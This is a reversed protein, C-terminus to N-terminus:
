LQPRFPPQQWMVQNTSFRGTFSPPQPPPPPQLLPQPPPPLLQPQSPPPPPLQPQPPPRMVMPPQSTIPPRFPQCSLLSRTDARPPPPGPPLPPQPLLPRPPCLPLNQFNSTTIKPPQQNHLEPPRWEPMDDDDFLKNKKLSPKLSGTNKNNNRELAEVVSPVQILSLSDIKKSSEPPQSVLTSKKCAASFDFEPLDDDEFPRKKLVFNGSDSSVSNQLPSSSSSRGGNHDLEPCVITLPSTLPKDRQSSEIKVPSLKKENDQKLSFGPPSDQQQPLNPSNKSDSTNGVPNSPRNKRWVVCGIMSDPKDDIVSMGKFFGYKALITIIPDSRPCIYLDTGSLLHAFGVRSSKKYGKAVQYLDFACLIVFQAM